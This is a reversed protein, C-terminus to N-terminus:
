KWKHNLPTVGSSMVATFAPFLETVDVHVFLLIFFFDRSKTRLVQLNPELAPYDLLLLALFYVSGQLLLKYRRGSSFLWPLENIRVRRPRVESCTYRGSISGTTSQRCVPKNENHEAACEM